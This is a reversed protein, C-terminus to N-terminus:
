QFDIGIPVSKHSSTYSLALVIIRIHDGHFKSYTGLKTNIGAHAIFDGRPLGRPIM